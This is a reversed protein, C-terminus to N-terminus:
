FEESAVQLKGVTQNLQKNEWALQVVIEELADIRKNSTQSVQQKKHTKFIKRVFPYAITGIVVGALLAPAKDKHVLYFNSMASLTSCTLLLLLCIRICIM